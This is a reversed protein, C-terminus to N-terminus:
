PNAMGIELRFSYIADATRSVGTLAATKFREIKGDKILAVSDLVSGFDRVGNAKVSLVLVDGNFVLGSIGVQPPLLRFVDDFIGKYDTRDKIVGAAQGLIDQYLRYRLEQQSSQAVQATAAEVQSKIQSNQYNVLFFWGFLGAIILVFVLVIARSAFMLRRVVTNIKIVQGAEKPVLDIRITAM